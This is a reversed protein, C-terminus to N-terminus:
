RKENVEGTPSIEVSYSGGSGTLKIKLPSGESIPMQIRDRSDGPYNYFPPTNSPNYFEVDTELPRFLVNVQTPTQLSLELNTITVGDPLTVTKGEPFLQESENFICTPKLTYASTGKSFTLYWGILTVDYTESLGGKGCRSDPGKDGSHAKNQALRIDNKLTLAANKVKQTREFSLYAATILSAALGFLSIVILLEILSFGQKLRKANQTKRKAIFGPLSM